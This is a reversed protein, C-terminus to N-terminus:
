LNCGLYEVLDRCLKAAGKVVEVHRRTLLLFHQGGEVSPLVFHRSTGLWAGGIPATPTSSGGFVTLPDAAKRASSDEFPPASTCRNGRGAPLQGMQDQLEVAADQDIPGPALHGPPTSCLRGVHQAQVHHMLEHGAFGAHLLGPVESCFV